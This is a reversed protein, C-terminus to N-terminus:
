ASLRLGLRRVCRAKTSTIASSSQRLCARLARLRIRLAAFPIPATQLPLSIRFFEEPKKRGPPSGEKVSRCHRAVRICRQPSYLFSTKQILCINEDRLRRSFTKKGCVSSAIKYKRIKAKSKM